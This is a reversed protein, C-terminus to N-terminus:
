YMCPRCCDRIRAGIDEGGQTARVFASEAADPPLELASIMLPANFTEDCLQFLDVIVRNDPKGVGVRHHINLEHVPQEVPDFLLPDALEENHIDPRIHRYLMGSSISFIALSSQLHHDATKFGEPVLLQLRYLLSDPAM